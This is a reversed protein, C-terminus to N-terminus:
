ALFSHFCGACACQMLYTRNACAIATLNADDLHHNSNQVVRRRIICRGTLAGCYGLVMGRPAESTWRGLRRLRLLLGLHFRPPRLKQRARPLQLEHRPHVDEFPAAESGLVVVALAVRVNLGLNPREASGDSLFLPRAFKFQSVAENIKGCIEAPGLIEVRSLYWGEVSFGSKKRRSGSMGTAMGPGEVRSTLNINARCCRDHRHGQIGFFAHSLSSKQGRERYM